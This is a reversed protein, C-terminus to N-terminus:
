LQQREIMDLASQKDSESMSNWKEKAKEREEPPIKNWQELLFARAKPSLTVGIWGLPDDEVPADVVKVEVPPAETPPKAPEPAKEPPEPRGPPPERPAETNAAAMPSFAKTRGDWEIMVRTAEISVVRADGIKDGVKYRKDGVLMEDGLIGDIQKVPHEKTSQKAFLNDKKLAEAVERARGLSQQLDNPHRGAMSRVQAVARRTQLYSAAKALTLAGLLVGAAILAFTTLDRQRSPVTESKM